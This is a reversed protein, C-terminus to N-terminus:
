RLHDSLLELAPPIPNSHNPKKEQISNRDGGAMSWEILQRLEGPDLWIGHDRCEDIIVGSRDGYQVRNMLTQCQPCPRYRIVGPTFAPNNILDQILGHHVQSGAGSSNKLIRELSGIPLFLGLCDPCRNVKLASPKLVVEELCSQCEPCNLDERTSISEHNKWYDLDINLRNGCYICVAGQQPRPASCCPCNM